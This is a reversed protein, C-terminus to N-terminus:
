DEEMEEEEYDDEEEDEHQESPTGGRVGKKSFLKACGECYWKGPPVETLGVCDLHFWQYPCKLITFLVKFLYLCVGQDLLECAVMTGYSGQRCYCWRDEVSEEGTEKQKKNIKKITQEVM